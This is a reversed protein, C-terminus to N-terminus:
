DAPGHFLVFYTYGRTGYQAKQMETKQFGAADSLCGTYESQRKLRSCPMPLTSLPHLRSGCLDERNHGSKRHSRSEIRISSKFTPCRSKCINKCMLREFEPFGIDTEMLYQSISLNGNLMDTFKPHPPEELVIIQHKEMMQRAFPITEVRHSSFAITIM